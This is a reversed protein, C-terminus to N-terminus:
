EATFGDIKTFCGAPNAGAFKTKDIQRISGAETTPVWGCRECPAPKSLERVSEETKRIRNDLDGYSVGRITEVIGKLVSIKQKSPMVIADLGALTDLIQRNKSMIQIGAEQHDSAIVALRDRYSRVGIFGELKAIRADLFPLSDFAAQAALISELGQKTAKRAEVAATYARISDLCQIKANLLRISWAYTECETNATALDARRNSLESERKALDQLQKLLEQKRDLNQYPLLDTKCRILKHQESDILTGLKASQTRLWSISKDIDDLAVIRNIERALQGGTLALLFVSDMQSQFNVETLMLRDSVAKPQQKACALFKEQGVKYGYEKANKFRIVGGQPTLVGVQLSTEGHTVLGSASEHLAIFRLARIIASKGTDSAGVVVNLGPNVTLLLDRHAQFNVLKIQRIM